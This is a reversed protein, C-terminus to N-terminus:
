DYRGGHIGGFCSVLSGVIFFDSDISQRGLLATASGILSVSSEAWMHEGDMLCLSRQVGMSGSERHDILGYSSLRLNTRRSMLRRKMRDTAREM